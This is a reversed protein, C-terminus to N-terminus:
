ISSCFRSLYENLESVTNFLQNSEFIGIILPDENEVEKPRLYVVDMSKALAYTLECITGNAGYPYIGIVLDSKDIEGFDIKARERVSYVPETQHWTSIVKIPCVMELYLMVFNILNRNFAASALYVKVKM